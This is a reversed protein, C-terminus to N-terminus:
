RIMREAFPVAGPVAGASRDWTFEGAMGRRIMEEFHHPRDYYTSVAWGITDYLAGASIESFMFGTGDGSAQDYSRVTDILGGTARVVPPTGYLLSYMQNLGCPEYVSPMVFVDSGAEILHALEESYGIYTGISGGFRAPLAGFYTEFEREGSGLVVFQCEMTDVVREIVNRLLHVGKQDTFRGIFGLLVRDDRPELGFRRQLERKNSRKGARNSRDYNAALYPDTAPNWADSDIGNLIGVLDGSRRRLLDHM